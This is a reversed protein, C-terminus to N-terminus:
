AAKTYNNHEHILKGDTKLSNIYREATKQNIELANAITLYGQRTFNDPLNKFFQAVKDSPKKPAVGKLKAFIQLTHEFVTKAVELAIDVDENSPILENKFDGNDMMRLVTLIMCVRYAFSALRRGSATTDEGLEANARELLIPFEQNFRDLLYNTETFNVEGLDHLRKVFGCYRNGLVKFYDETSVSKRKELKLPTWLRGIEIQYFQFRSFFGDQVNPILNAVQNDTGSLLTSLKPTDIESYESNTSRFSTITEHEFARRLMESFNGMESKVSNALTDAETEFLCGIGNNESLNKKFGASTNNAPIFHLKRAPEILPAVGKNNSEKFLAKDIEYQAWEQKTQELLMKHYPMALLKCLSLKGKGASAPGTIFLFLNPFIKRDRYIGSVNFMLSGLTVLSGLFLLDREQEGEHTKFIDTLLTPLNEFVANPIFPPRKQKIKLNSQMKNSLLQKAHETHKSTISNATSRKKSKKTSIELNAEKAYSFLTGISIGGMNRKLAQNFKADSEKSNYAPHFQSIKHFYPRGDEKFEDVLAFAINRWREETTTLDLSHHEIQNIILEVQERTSNFKENKSSFATESKKLTPRDNKNFRSENEIRKLYEEPNFKIKM